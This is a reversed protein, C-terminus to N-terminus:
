KKVYVVRGGVITMEARTKLIEPPAIKTVDASLVVIDAFKGVAIQGKNKEEFEAYASGWTYGRICEDMTIKEQPVWGGKPGGGPLERTVCAYLGIMPDLPEVAYDTGFALPIGHKLMTKWAYAGKSREPGVRAEAWRMDTTEHCPQMSAVVNLEAFRKFDEPAIVQAHEIKHRADRKGNAARAAAFADLSVRNARDGIAHLAIQFGAKDREVTMETLPVPAIRLIGTTSSDDAYPALMAATRSGLTGDTVGKLAGTKLWPDTIGGHKRMEELRSLPASFPLWETIRLTLKGEKRLQEYILFDQWDSNDQISTIGHGAAEAMALEIGRRRQEPTLAPVHRRVLGMANEKLMGTPEGAEGAKADREIEGGPPSPTDKTIGAKELALSNVIAVHGDVRTFIMPHQKSVADLDERRPFRKEPWLTHDWGRGTIWEGAKFEGLRARIRQQFEGLSKSGGLEVALKAQGGSALHIHADNFGPMAFRGKLDIVRTGSGVWAQMEKSTGTAVIREGKIAVAEVLPRATDVTYIVGNTLVLDAPEAASVVEPTTGRSPAYLCFAGIGSSCLSAAVRARSSLAAFVAM